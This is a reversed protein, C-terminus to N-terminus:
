AASRSRSPRKGSRGNDAPDINFGGLEGVSSSEGTGFEVRGNSLLDLTSIREAVRAPHNVAPPLHM